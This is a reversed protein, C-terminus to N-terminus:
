IHIRVIQRIWLVGLCTMVIATWMMQIGTPDKWLTSMLEPNLQYVVVAMGPPLATLIWGGLRGEASLVRVKDLLQLRKRILSGVNDLIEALNGGSERQILIAIVLYRLDDVPVRDILGALADNLSVGYNIQSFVMALEAGIPQPLEDGAMELASPLSHGARLARSILDTAEPLQAELKMLRRTRRHLVYFLPLSAGAAALAVSAVWPPNLPSIGIVVAVPAILTFVLFRAVSWDLGSQLLLLDLRNVRPLKGLLAAVEQSEALVRQKLISEDAGHRASSLLAMKLRQSLRKATQSHRSDWWLYTGSVGLVIAVFVSLTFGIVMTDM